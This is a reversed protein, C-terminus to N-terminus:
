KKKLEFIHSVIKLSKEDFEEMLMYGPKLIERKELGRYFKLYLADLVFIEAM